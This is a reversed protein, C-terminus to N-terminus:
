AINFSFSAQISTINTNEMARTPSPIVVLLTPDDAKNVLKNKGVTGCKGRHFTGREKLHVTHHLGATPAICSVQCIFTNLTAATARATLLNQTLRCTVATGAKLTTQLNGM